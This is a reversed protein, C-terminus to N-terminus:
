EDHVAAAHLQVREVRERGAKRLRCMALVLRQEPGVAGARAMKRRGRHSATGRMEPGNAFRESHGRSYQGKLFSRGM